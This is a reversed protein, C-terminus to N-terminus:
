MKVITKRYQTPTVGTMKRFSETFYSASSFGTSFAIQTITMDSKALMYMGKEIRFKILYEFPTSSVFQKFIATCTNECVNASTAIDKLKLKKNYNESIYELMTKIRSFDNKPLEVEPTKQMLSHIGTILNFLDGQVSLHYDSSGIQKKEFVKNIYGISKKAIEDEKKLIIYPHTLDDIIPNIFTREIYFNQCFLVPHVLLCIYVCDTNDDSYGFHLHGSNVFLGDGENLTIITGNINYKLHGSLISMFELDTHHHSDFKYGRYLSICGKQVYLPVEPYDYKVNETGNEKIDPTLYFDKM